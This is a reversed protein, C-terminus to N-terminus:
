DLPRAGRLFQEAATEVIEDLREPEVFQGNIISVIGQLTAYLVIGIREPDGDQLAGQTQGQVILDRLQDIPAEAATAIRTAGPRHKSTYMLEVLAANETSFRTMATMAARLRSPFDDDARALATRLTTDLRTFGTEALADLLAQRNPFHRRPAGHSVGLERALDRLAVQDVGHERLSREAADLLAARLNGHHYPRDDPVPERYRVTTTSLM